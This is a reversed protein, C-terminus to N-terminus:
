GPSGRPSRVPASDTRGFVAAAIQSAAFVLLTLTQDRDGNMLLAGLLMAFGEVLEISAHTALPYLKFQGQPYDTLRTNAFHVLAGAVLLWRAVPEFGGFFAAGLYSATAFEDLWGHLRVPIVRLKMRGFVFSRGFRIVRGEYGVSV